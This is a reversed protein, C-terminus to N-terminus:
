RVNARSDGLVNRLFARSRAAVRGEFRTFARVLDRMGRRGGWLERPLRPDRGAWRAVRGGVALRAAFAQESSELRDDRREIWRALASAGRDLTALDYLAAVRRLNLTEVFSGRLGFGAAHSLHHRARELAWARPWAPRLFTGPAWPRFGDFWLASWARERGGRDPPLRVTLALWTGDWEESVPRQLRARIGEVVASQGPSPRYLRTRAPGHRDLAGEIAMRTLHSKANTASVGLPKVLRIVQAATLPRDALVFAGFLLSRTSEKAPRASKM